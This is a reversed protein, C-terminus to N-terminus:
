GKKEGSVKEALAAFAKEIEEAILSAANVRSGIPEPPELIPRGIVLCDGGAMIADAPTTVREQDNKKAWVPRIGPTVLIMSQFEQRKRLVAIEQPSCILGHVGALKALRALQVVQVKSPRNYIAQCEEEDLSTLVTVALVKSSGAVAVAARMMEVGGTAHVNFFGVKGAVAKAAGVVTNPIDLLKGDFFIQSPNGDLAKNIKEVLIQPGVGANNILELGIKFMGVYDRLEEIITCAEELPQYM